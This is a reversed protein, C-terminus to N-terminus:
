DIGEFYSNNHVFFFLYGMSDSIDNACHHIFGHPLYQNAIKKNFFEM